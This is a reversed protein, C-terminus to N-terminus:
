GRAAEKAARYAAGLALLEMTSKHLGPFFEKISEVQEEESPGGVVDRLTKANDRNVAWAEALRLAAAILPADERQITASGDYGVTRAAEEIEDALKLPDAM